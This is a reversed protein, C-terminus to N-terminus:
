EQGRESAPILAASLRKFDDEDEDAIQEGADANDRAWDLLSRWEQLAEELAQRLAQERAEAASARHNAASLLGSVCEMVRMAACDCMLGGNTTRYSCKEHHQNAPTARALEWGTPIDLMRQRIGSQEILAAVLEPVKLALVDEQISGDDSTRAAVGFLEGVQVVIGRYFEANNAMDRATAHWMAANGGDVLQEQGKAALAARLEAQEACVPCPMVIGCYNCVPKGHGAGCSSYLRKTPVHTEGPNARGKCPQETLPALGPTPAPDAM